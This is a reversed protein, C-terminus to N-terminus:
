RTPRWAPRLVVAPDAELVAHAARQALDALRAALPRLRDALAACSAAMAARLAALVLVLRDRCPPYRDRGARPQAEGHAAVRLRLGGERDPQHCPSGGRRGSKDDRHRHPRPPGQRGQHDPREHWVGSKLGPRM